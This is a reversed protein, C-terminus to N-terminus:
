MQQNKVNQIRTQIGALRVDRNKFTKETKSNQHVTATM